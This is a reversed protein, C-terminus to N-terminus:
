LVILKKTGKFGDSEINLYYLGTVKREFDIEFGDVNSYERKLMLRGISNYIQINTKQYTKDLNVHIIDRIPNPAVLFILALIKM